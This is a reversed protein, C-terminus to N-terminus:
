SRQVLPTWGRNQTYFLPLSADPVCHAFALALGLQHFGRWDSEGGDDADFGLRRGISEIFQIGQPRIADPWLLSDPHALSYRKPIVNGASLRVRPARKKIRCRGYETTMANVYYFSAPSAESLSEFSVSRGEVPYARAWTKLFQEGSGVFDDVFVVPGSFGRVLEEVVKQPEHLQNQRVGIAQRAKRAFLWGSDSPNPREGQVLTIMANDCFRRWRERAPNFDQWVDDLLISLNQFASRFLQDVLADAVFTFRSLLVLAFGRESASFNTLWGHLDIKTQDWAGFDVLRGCAELVVSEDPFVPTTTMMALSTRLAGQRGDSTLHLGLRQWDASARRNNRPRNGAYRQPYDSLRM